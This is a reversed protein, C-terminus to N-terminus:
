RAQSGGGEPGAEQLATPGEYRPSRAPDTGGDRDLERAASRLDGAHRRAGLGRTRRCRLAGLEGLARPGVAAVDGARRGDRLEHCLDLLLEAPEVDEHVVGADRAVLQEQAHAFFVEVADDGHVQLAAPVEELGRRARQHFGSAPDDIDGGHDPDRAVGSLRVVGRALGADESERARERLLEGSPRDRDVRDGRAEDRGVHGGAEVLLRRRLELRVDRESADSAGILDGGGDVEEDSRACGVDGSLGEDDVPAERESGVGGGVRIEYGGWWGQWSVGNMVWGETSSRTILITLSLRPWGASFILRSVDNTFSRPASERSTTSSTMSNSSWNSIEIGSSSAEFIWVTPLAM